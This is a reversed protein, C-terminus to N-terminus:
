SDRDGGLLDPKPPLLRERLLEVRDSTEFELPLWRPLLGSGGLCNEKLNPPPGATPDALPMRGLVNALIFPSEREDCCDADFELAPEDDDEKRFRISDVPPPGDPDFPLFDASSGRM